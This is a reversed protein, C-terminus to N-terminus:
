RIDPTVEDNGGANRFPMVAPDDFPAKGYAARPEENAPPVQLKARLHVLETKLMELTKAYKPDKIFNRTEDPNEMLDYLEWEDVDPKYYHVLKYRDTVVGYHPRV